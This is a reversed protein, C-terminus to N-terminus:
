KIKERGTANEIDHSSLFAWKIKISKYGLTYPNQRINPFNELNWVIM